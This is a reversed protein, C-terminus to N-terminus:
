TGNTVVITIQDGMTSGSGSPREATFNITQMVLAGPDGEEPADAVWCKDCRITIVGDTSGLPHTLVAKFGIATGARVAANWTAADYEVVATGSIEELGPVLDTIAYGSGIPGQQLNNAGTLEFSKIRALGSSSGPEGAGSAMYFAGHQFIFPAEDVYSPATFGSATAEPGQGICDMSLTIAAGEDDGSLTWSNVMLGKHSKTEVPDYVQGEFSSLSGSTSGRDICLNLLAECSDRYLLSTINGEVQYKQLVHRHRQFGGANVAPVFPPTTQKIRYGSGQAPASYWSVGSGTAGGDGWTTETKVRWHRRFGVHGAM